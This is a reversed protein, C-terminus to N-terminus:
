CSWLYSHPLCSPPPTMFNDHTLLFFLFPFFCFHLFLPQLSHSSDLPCQLIGYLEKQLRIFWKQWTHSWSVLIRLSWQCLLFVITMQCWPCSQTQCSVVCPAFSSTETSPCQRQMHVQRRRTRHLVIRILMHLKRSRGGPQYISFLEEGMSIFLFCSGDPNNWKSREEHPRVYTWEFCWFVTIEALWQCIHAYYVSSLKM